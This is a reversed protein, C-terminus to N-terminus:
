LFKSPGVYGRTEPIYGSSIAFTMVLGCITEGAPIPLPQWNSVKEEGWYIERGRNTQLQTLMDAFNSERRSSFLSLDPIM